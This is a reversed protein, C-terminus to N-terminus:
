PNIWLNKIKLFVKIFSPFSPRVFTELLTQNSDEDYM